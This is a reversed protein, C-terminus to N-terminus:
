QSRISRHNPGASLLQHQPRVRRRHSRLFHGFRFRRSCIPHVRNWNQLGHALTCIWAPGTEGLRKKKLHKRLLMEELLHHCLVLLSRRNQAAEHVREHVILAVRDAFFYVPQLLGGLIQLGDLSLKRILSGDSEARRKRLGSGCRRTMRARRNWSSILAGFRRGALRKLFKERRVLREFIRFEAVAEQDLAHRRKLVFLLRAQPFHQFVQVAFDGTGGIDLRARVRALGRAIRM